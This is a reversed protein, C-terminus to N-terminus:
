VLINIHKYSVDSKLQQSGGGATASAEM